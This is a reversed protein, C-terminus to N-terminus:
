QPTSLAGNGGSTSVRVESQRRRDHDGSPNDSQSGMTVYADKRNETRSRMNHMSERKLKSMQSGGNSKLTELDDDVERIGTLFSYDM